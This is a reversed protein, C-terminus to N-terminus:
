DGVQRVNWEVQQRLLPSQSFHLTKSEKPQIKQKGPIIFSDKNSFLKLRKYKAFVTQLGRLISSINPRAMSNYNFADALFHLMSNAGMLHFIIHPAINLAMSQEITSLM